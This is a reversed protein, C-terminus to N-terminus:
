KKSQRKKKVTGDENYEKPEKLEKEKEKEKQSSESVTPTTKAIPVMYQRPPEIRQKFLVLEREFEEDVEEEEVVPGTEAGEKPLEHEEEENGSDSNKGEDDADGLKSNAKKRTKRTRKKKKPLESCEIGDLDAVKAIEAASNEVVQEIAALQTEEPTPDPQRMRAKSRSKRAPEPNKDKATLKEEKPEPKSSEKVEKTENFSTFKKGTAAPPAKVTKESKDALKSKPTKRSPLLDEPIPALTEKARQKPEALAEKNMRKKSAERREKVLSSVGDDDFDEFIVDDSDEGTSKDAKDVSVSAAAKPRDRFPKDTDGRLPMPRPECLDIPLEKRGRERELTKVQLVKQNRYVMGGGCRMMEFLQQDDASGLNKLFRQQGQLSTECILSKKQCSCVFSSIAFNVSNAAEHPPLVITPQAGVYIEVIDVSGPTTSAM